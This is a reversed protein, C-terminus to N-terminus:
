LKTVEVMPDLYVFKTGAGYLSYYIKAKVATDYNVSIGSIEVYQSWDDNDSRPNVNGSSQYLTQDGAYYVLGSYHTIEMWLDDSDLSGTTFTNQVYYRISWEGSPLIMDHELVKHCSLGQFGETGLPAKFGQSSSYRYWDLKLVRDSGGPRQNVNSGSCDDVIIQGTGPLLTRSTGGRNENILQIKSVGNTSDYISSSSAESLDCDALILYNENYLTNYVPYLGYYMYSTTGVDMGIKCNKLVTKGNGYSYVGIYGASLIVSNLIYAESASILIIGYQSSDYYYTGNFVCGEIIFTGYGAYLLDSDSTTAEFRCNKYITGRGNLDRVVYNHSNGFVSKNFSINYKDVCTATAFYVYGQGQTVEVEFIDLSDDRSWISFLDAGDSSTLGSAVHYLADELVTFSKSTTTAGTYPPDIWVTDSDVVKCLLHQNGDVEIYRAEHSLESATFSLGSVIYSGNTFTATYSTSPRPWSSIAIRNRPTGDVGFITYSTSTLQESTGRRIFLCGDASMSNTAYLLTKFPTSMATGYGASDTGNDYDLYYYDQFDYGAM